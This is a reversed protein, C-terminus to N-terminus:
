HNPFLEEIQAAYYGHYEVPMLRGINAMVLDANKQRGERKDEGKGEVAPLHFPKGIHMELKPRQGRIARQFFDDTTGMIGVPVILANTMEAIFAIGPKAQRMALVHTRGGEPAILLPYGSQIIKVVSDLAQRDYTGRNVPTGGYMRVLLNQGFSARKWVDSAGILEIMEPWVTLLFPPDFSSVHNMAAIYPKGLPVNEQGTIKIDALLYFLGKFIPKFASRFFRNIVSVRYTKKIQPM